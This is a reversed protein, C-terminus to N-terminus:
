HYIKVFFTIQKEVWILKWWTNLIDTQPVYAHKLDHIGSDISTDITRQEISHWVNKKM